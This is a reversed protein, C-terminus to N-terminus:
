KTATQNHVFFEGTKCVFGVPMTYPYDNGSDKGFRGDSILYGKMHQKFVSGKPLRLKDIARVNSILTVPADLTFSADTFAESIIDDKNESLVRKVIRVLDSETLRVIKEM